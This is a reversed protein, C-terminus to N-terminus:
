GQAGSRGKREKEEKAMFKTRLSLLQGLVNFWFPAGLSLLVVSLLMGPLAQASWTWPDWPTYGKSGRWGQVGVGLVDLQELLQGAQVLNEQVLALSANNVKARYQDALHALDTAGVKQPDLSMLLDVGQGRSVVPQHEPLKVNAEKAVAVLTNEFIDKGQQESHTAQASEALAVAQRRLPENTTMHQLVQLADLQLFVTVLVAFGVSLLRSNFAFRESMRDSLVDFWRGLGELRDAYDSFGRLPSPPPPGAPGPQGQRHALVGQLWGLADKEAATERCGGAPVTQRAIETLLATLEEVRVVKSYPCALFRMLANNSGTSLLPHTAVEKALWSAAKEKAGLSSFLRELGWVLNHGRLNFAAVVLQTLATVLLSALLIVVVFAIVSEILPLM